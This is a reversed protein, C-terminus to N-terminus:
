AAEEGQELLFIRGEEVLRKATVVIENQAEEV